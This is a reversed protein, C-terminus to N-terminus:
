QQADGAPPWPHYNAYAWPRPGRAIDCPGDSEGPGKTWLYADILPNNTRVTPRLGIAAGPPNCYDGLRLKAIVDPPQDYPAAAYVAVDLRGRGNRGTDVLFLTLPM